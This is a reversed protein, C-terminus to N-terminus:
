YGYRMGQNCTSVNGQGVYQGQELGILEIRARIHTIFVFFRILKKLQGAL